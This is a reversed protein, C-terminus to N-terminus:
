GGPFVLGCDPCETANEPVASSCAPCRGPEVADADFDDPIDPVREGILQTKIAEARERVENDVFLHLRVQHGSSGFQVDVREAGPDGEIYPRISAERLREALRRTFPPQRSSLLYLESLHPAHKTARGARLRGGCHVCRDVSDPFQADCSPCLRM